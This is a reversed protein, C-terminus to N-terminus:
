SSYSEPSKRIRNSRRVIQVERIDKDIDFEMEVENCHSIEKSSPLQESTSQQLDGSNHCPKKVSIRNGNESFTIILVRIDGSTPSSNSNNNNSMHLCSEDDSNTVPMSPKIQDASIKWLQEEMAVLYTLPGEHSIM